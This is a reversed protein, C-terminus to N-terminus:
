TSKQGTKTQNTKGKVKAVMEAITPNPLKEGRENIKVFLEVLNTLMEQQKQEDDMLEEVMTETVSEDVQQAMITILPISNNLFNFDVGPWSGTEDSGSFIKTVPLGFQKELRRQTKIRLKDELVLGPALEIRNPGSIEHLSSLNTNEKEM